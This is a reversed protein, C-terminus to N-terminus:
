TVVLKEIAKITAELEEITNMKSFSFRIAPQDMSVGIAKLVHSGLNSGSTCASGGSIAIGSLDMNFLLMSQDKQMKFSINLIAPSANEASGNITYDLKSSNLLEIFKQKLSSVYEFKEARKSNSDLLAKELGLISHINETGPRFGREQTGGFTLSHVAIGQKIYIFGVGKPGHFKHASCAIFDIGLAKVDIKYYGLSQVTDSHFLANNSKCVKGVQDINLVNGTENNVHMLSVLTKIDTSLLESLHAIDISGDEKLNVYDVQIYKNKKLFDITNLVAHHEIESTIIRKVDLNYVSTQLALNDAETGGSTFFIEAPSANIVSAINKRAMELKAKAIRGFSHISSPNGTITLMSQHMVEIVEPALPTTAANDFYINGM